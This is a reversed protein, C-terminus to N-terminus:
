VTVGWILKAAGAGLTAQRLTARAAVAAGQRDHNFWASHPAKIANGEPLVYFFRLFIVMKVLDVLWFHCNEIAINFEWITSIPTGYIPTGV